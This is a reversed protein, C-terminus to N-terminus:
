KDERTPYDPHEEKENYQKIEHQAEEEEVLRELYRKKGRTKETEREKITKTGTM